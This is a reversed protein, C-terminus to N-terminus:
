YSAWDYVDNEVEYLFTNTLEEPQKTTNKFIVFVNLNSNISYHSKCLKLGIKNCLSKMSSTNYFCNGLQKNFNYRNIFSLTNETQIIIKGNDFLKGLLNSFLLQPNNIMEIGYPLLVIDFLSYVNRIGSFSVFEIRLNTKSMSEILIKLFTKQNEKLEWPTVVLINQIGIFYDAHELLFYEEFTDNFKDNENTTIDFLKKQILFCSTCYLFDPNKKAVKCDNQCVRCKYATKFNSIRNWNSLIDDTISNYTDFAIFEFPSFQSTESSIFYRGSFSKTSYNLLTEIFRCFDFISIFSINNQEINEKLNNKYLFVEQNIANTINFSPSYGNIEAHDIYYYHHETVIANYRPDTFIFVQEYDIKELLKFSFPALSIIADFVKYFDRHLHDQSATFTIIRESSTINFSHFQPSLVTIHYDTRFLLFEILRSGIYGNAGIICIRKSVDLTNNYIYENM